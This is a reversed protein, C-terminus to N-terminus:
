RVRPNSKLPFRISLDLGFRGPRPLQFEHAGQCAFVKAM